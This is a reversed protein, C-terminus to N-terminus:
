WVHWIALAVVVGTLLRGPRQCFWAVYYALTSIPIAILVCWLFGLGRWFRSGPGVWAGHRAYVLLSSLTAPPESWVTPIDGFAYARVKDGASSLWAPLPRRAGEPGEQRGRGSGSGERARDRAGRRTEEAEPREGSHPTHHATATPTSTTTV